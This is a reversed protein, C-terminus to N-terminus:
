QHKQRSPRMTEWQGYSVTGVLEWAIIGMNSAKKAIWDYKELGAHKIYIKSFFGTFEDGFSDKYLSPILEFAEISSM